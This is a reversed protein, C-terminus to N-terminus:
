GVSRRKKGGSLRSRWFCTALSFWREFFSPRRWTSGALVIGPHSLYAILATVSQPGDQAALTLLAEERQDAPMRSLPVVRGGVQVLEFEEDVPRRLREKLAKWDYQYLVLTRRLASEAWWAADEGVRQVVGSWDVVGRATLDAIDKRPIGMLRLLQEQRVGLQDVFWDLRDDLEEPYEREFDDAWKRVQELTPM